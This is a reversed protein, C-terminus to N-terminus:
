RAFVVVVGIPAGPRDVDQAVGVGVSRIDPDRALEMPVFRAVEYIVQVSVGAASKVVDAAEDGLASALQDVGRGADGAAARVAGRQAVVELAPDRRLPATEERVAELAALVQGRAEGADILAVKRAFVQTLLWDDGRRALGL